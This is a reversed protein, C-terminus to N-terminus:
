KDNPERSSEGGDEERWFEGDLIQSDTDQLDGQRPTAGHSRHEHSFIQHQSASQGRASAADMRSVFGSVLWRRLGPLLAAFGLVDTVFGPTILLVGSVALILAEAMELAPIEGADMKQRARFLTAFGQQRLLSFGVAATLIVLGITSWAGIERGVTILLWMEVIPMVIFLLLLFRL